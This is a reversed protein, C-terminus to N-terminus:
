GRLDNMKKRMSEDGEIHIVYSNNVIRDIIAEAVAGEGIKQAWGGAAFQSCLMMSGRRNRAEVIELVERAEESKLSELMWDDVILLDCKILRQKAKVWEEDKKVCLEDLMEPLRIYRVSYFSNCAAIGLACAIWTKGAGTAGTIVVNRADKVWNCGALSTMRDRDLNRDADYRIDAINADPASFNAQRLLRLRKNVRRADWEADVLMALREDFDMDAIGPAQEQDRYARAMVGMRMEYLKDQTSQMTSM